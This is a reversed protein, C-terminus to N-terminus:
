GAAVLRRIPLKPNVVVDTGQSEAIDLSQGGLLTQLGDRAGLPLPRAADRVARAPVATQSAAASWVSLGIACEM